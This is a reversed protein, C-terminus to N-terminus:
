NQPRKLTPAVPLKCYLKFFLIIIIIIFTIRECHADDAKRSSLFFLEIKLWFRCNVFM